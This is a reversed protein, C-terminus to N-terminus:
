RTWRAQNGFYVDFHHCGKPTFLLVVLMVMEPAEPSLPNSRGLCGCTNKMTAKLIILATGERQERCSVWSESSAWISGTGLACVVYNIALHHGYLGMKIRIWM